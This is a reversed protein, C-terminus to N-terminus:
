HLVLITHSVFAFRFLVYAVINSVIFVMRCNSKSRNLAISQKNEPSCIVTGVSSSISVMMYDIVTNSFHQFNNDGLTLGFAQTRKWKYIALQHIEVTSGICILIKNLFSMLSSITQVIESHSHWVFVFKFLSTLQLYTSSIYFWHYFLLLSRNLQNRPAFTFRILCLEQNFLLLYLLLDFNLPPNTENNHYCM